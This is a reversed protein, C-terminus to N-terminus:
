LTMIEQNNKNHIILNGNWNIYRISWISSDYGSPLYKKTLFKNSNTIIEIKKHNNQVANSIASLVKSTWKYECLNKRKLAKSVSIGELPTNNNLNIGIGVRVYLIEKGRTIVKPLFGIIKKSGYFIDNPWKLNVKISRDLFMECLQNAIALSFVETKFNDSFIPYAASLWIGGLPSFWKRGYQGVGSFQKKSIIAIPKDFILKPRKLYNNLQNETSKCNFVYNLNWDPLDKSHKKYYFATKAAHGLFKM